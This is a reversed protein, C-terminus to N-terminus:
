LNKMKWDNGIEGPILIEKAFCRYIWALSVASLTMFVVKTVAQVSLILYLDSFNRRVFPMFFVSEIYSPLQVSMAEICIIKWVHGQTDNWMAQWDIRGGLAIHPFVLASRAAVYTCAFLMMIKATQTVAFQDVRDLGGIGFTPGILLAFTLPFVTLIVFGMWIIFYRFYTYVSLKSFEFEENKLSWRILPIAIIADAIGSMRRILGKVFLFSMAQISGDNSRENEHIVLNMFHEGYMVGLTVLFVLLFLLPMKRTARGSDLWIGTICKKLSLSRM